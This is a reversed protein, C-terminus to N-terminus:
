RTRSNSNFRARDANYADIRSQDYEKQQKMSDDEQKTKKAVDVGAQNNQASLAAAIAKNQQVLIGMTQVIAQAGEAAGQIEDSSELIKKYATTASELSESAAQSSEFLVKATADGAAKRKAMVTTYEGWSTYNGSAFVGQIKQWAQSGQGVSSQLEGLSRITQRIETLRREVGSRDGVITKANAKLQEEIQKLQNIENILLQAASVMNKQYNTPDFVRRGVGFAQSSVTLFQAILVVFVGIILKNM